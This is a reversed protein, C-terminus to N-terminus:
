YETVYFPCDIHEFFQCSLNKLYINPQKYIKINNNSKITSTILHKEINSYYFCKINCLNNKCDVLNAGAFTIPFEPYQSPSVIHGIWSHKFNNYKTTAKLTGDTQKFDEPTPCFYRVTQAYLSSSVAVMLCCWLLRIYM